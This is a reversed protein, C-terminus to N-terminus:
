TKYIILFIGKIQNKFLTDFYFKKINVPLIANKIKGSLLFPMKLIALLKKVKLKPKKILYFIKAPLKLIAFKLIKRKRVNLQIIKLSIFNM